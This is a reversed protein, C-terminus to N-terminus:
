QIRKAVSVDPWLEDMMQDDKQPLLGKYEGKTATNSNKLELVCAQDKFGVTTIFSARAM